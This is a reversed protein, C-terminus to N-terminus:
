QLNDATLVRSGVELCTFNLAVVKVRVDGGEAGGGM